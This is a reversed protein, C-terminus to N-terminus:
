PKGAASGGGGMWEHIMKLQIESMRMAANQDGASARQTAEMMSPEYRHMIDMWQAMRASATADGAAAKQQVSMMESQFALIETVDSGAGPAGYPIQPVSRPDRRATTDTAPKVTAPSKPGGTQARAPIAASVWMAASALGVIAIRSIQKRQDITMIGGRVDDAACCSDRARAPCACWLAGGADNEFV